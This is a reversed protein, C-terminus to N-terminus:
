RAPKRLSEAFQSIVKENTEYHLTKREPALEWSDHWVDDEWLGDTEWVWCGQVLLAAPLLLQDALHKECAAGSKIFAKVCTLHQRKLGPKERGARINVLSLEHGTIASLSLSTRLVQGGGEGLSGDIKILDKM